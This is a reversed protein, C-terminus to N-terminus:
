NKIVTSLHAFVFFYSSVLFAFKLWFYCIAPWNTFEPANFTQDEKVGNKEYSRQLVGWVLSSSAHQFLDLVLSVIALKLSLLLDPAVIVENGTKESFLWILAIAAFALQRTIDSTKGTHFYYNQRATDLNM